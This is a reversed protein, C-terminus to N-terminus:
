QQAEDEKWSEFLHEVMEALRQRNKQLEADTWQREPLLLQKREPLAALFYKPSPWQDRTCSLVRFTETIRGADSLRWDRGVWLAECWADVTGDILEMAPMRDLGLVMLRQIGTTMAHEFWEPIKAM